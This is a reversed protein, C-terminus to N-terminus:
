PPASARACEEGQWEMVAPPRLCKASSSSFQTCHSWEEVLLCHGRQPPTTSTM